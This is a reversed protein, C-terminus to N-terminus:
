ATVVARTTRSVGSPTRWGHTVWYWDDAPVHVLRALRLTVTSASPLRHTNRSVSVSLRMLYLLLPAQSATRRRRRRARHAARQQSAPRPARPQEGGGAPLAWAGTGQRHRRCAACYGRAAGQRGGGLRTAGRAREAARTDGQTRTAGLQAGEHRSYSIIVVNNQGQRLRIRHGYRAAAPRARHVPGIGGVVQIDSGAGDRRPLLLHGADIGGVRGLGRQDAGGCHVRSDAQEHRRRQPAPCRQLPPWRREARARGPPCGSGERATRPARHRAAPTGEPSAHAAAQLARAGSGRAGRLTSLAFLRRKM